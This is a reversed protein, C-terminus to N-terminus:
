KSKQMKCKANLEEPEQSRAGPEQSRAGGKRVWGLDRRMVVSVITVM